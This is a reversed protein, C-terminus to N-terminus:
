TKHLISFKQHLKRLFTLIKKKRANKNRLKHFNNEIQTLQTNTIHVITKDVIPKIKDKNIQKMWWNIDLKEINFQDFEIEKKINNLSKYTPLLIMPLGEFTKYIYHSKTIPITGCYLAEWFRHTDIGNGWPSISFQHLALSSLYDQYNKDEVLQINFVKQAYNITKIRHFYNTNLNFNLYLFKKKTQQFDLDFFDDIIASKSNRYPAIGLPIPTLSDTKYVVNTAYWSSVCKPMQNFLNKTIKRDSQSSIVKINQFKFKKLIHFLSEVYDAHSYIVDNEQINFNLNIFTILENNKEIIKIDSFNFKELDEQSLSASFVQDSQKIFNISSLVQDKQYKNNLVSIL